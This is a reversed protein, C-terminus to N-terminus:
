KEEFYIDLIDKRATVRSKFAFSPRLSKIFDVFYDHEVINFPYEHMIVALYFKRLSADPDYRFPQITTVDKGHDKEAKLELQGKVISHHSRLHNRFANTGHNSEVRYRQKCKPFNCYAWLQEFKKGNVEVEMTEKTFYKWIISTRRKQRKRTGTM